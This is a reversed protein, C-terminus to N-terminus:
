IIWMWCVANDLSSLSSFFELGWSFSCLAAFACPLVYVFLSFCLLFFSDCAPYPVPLFTEDKRRGLFVRASPFIPAISVHAPNNHIIHGKHSLPTPTPTPQERDGSGLSALSPLRKNGIQPRGNACKVANQSVFGINFLCRRRVCLCM